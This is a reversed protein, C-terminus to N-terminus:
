GEETVSSTTSTAPSTTDVALDNLKLTLLDRASGVAKNDIAKQYASRAKQLEGKALYIDGELEDAQVQISDITVEKLLGLAQVYDNQEALIQAKRISAISKMLENPNNALLWDLQQLALGYDVSNVAVKAMLLAGYQAYQTDTHEQQLTSALHKTTALNEAKVEDSAQPNNVASNVLQQYMFSANESTTVQKNQWAKYGYVASIAVAIM